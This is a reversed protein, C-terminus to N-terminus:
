VESSKQEGGQNSLTSEVDPHMGTNWSTVTITLSSVQARLPNSRAPQSQVCSMMTSMAVRSLTTMMEADTKNRRQSQIRYVIKPAM